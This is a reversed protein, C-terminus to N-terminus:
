DLGGIVRSGRRRPRQSARRRCPFPLLASSSVFYLKAPTFVFAQCVAESRRSVDGRRAAGSEPLAARSPCRDKILIAPDKFDNIGHQSFPHAPPPKPRQGRVPEPTPSADRTAQADRDLLLLRVTEFAQTSTADLPGTLHIRDESRHGAQVQSNSGPESRVSAAHRVCALRVLAEARTACPHTVRPFRGKPEPYRRSVSALM